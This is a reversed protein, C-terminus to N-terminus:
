HNENASEVPIVAGGIREQFQPYRTLLWKQWNAGLVLLEDGFTVAVIAGPTKLAHLERQDQYLALAVGAWLAVGLVSFGVLLVWGRRKGAERAETVIPM